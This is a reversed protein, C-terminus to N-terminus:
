DWRWFMKIRRHGASKSPSPTTASGTPNASPSVSPVSSQTPTTGSGSTGNTGYSATVDAVGDAVAKKGLVRRFFELSAKPQYFPIEHGSEYIRTFSFNGHQRVKGYEVNDVMFPSYSAARFENSHTYNIQMSVAEGGFWQILILMAQVITPLPIVNCIYDADGYFLAVRVDNDLLNELDGVFEAFVFDGTEDFNYSVDFSSDGTYNINVGLANQTADLNLFDVFYEPPDEGGRIDYPSLDPNLNYYPGEVKNRCVESASQCIRQGTTSSKNAIANCADIQDRCMGKGYYAAKMQSYTTDNVTKLGYTNNIAFEPFYPAQIKEDIIGNIIGLTDMVLHTGNQTGNAIAANQDKFHSYFSPGYHGGYSETWLNFTKSGIKSDLQPLNALFGQLVHWAAVAAEDTTSVAAGDELEGTSISTSGSNV